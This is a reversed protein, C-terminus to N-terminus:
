FDAQSSKVHSKFVQNIHLIQLTHNLSVTTTVLVRSLLNINMKINEGSRKLTRAASHRKNGNYESTTTGATPRSTSERHDRSRSDNGPEV